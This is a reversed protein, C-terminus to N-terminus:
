LDMDDLSLVYVNKKGGKQHNVIRPNGVAKLQSLMMGARRPDYSRALAQLDSNLMEQLLRTPNGRWERVGPEMTRKQDAWLEILDAFNQEPSKERSTRVLESHHYSTVRYRATGNIVEPPPVWGLLWDLFHPLEAKIMAELVKSEPFDPKRDSLHFLMIKDLITGDLQPLIELSSADTNCTVVVRGRWPLVVSDRYKPHYNVEPNAATKKLMETFKKHDAFNSASVGDDVNWVAVEALQKNFGTGAALLYGAADTGGGMIQRMIFQAFLSKGTDSEGALIVLHGLELRGIRASLWLRQIWALLHDIPDTPITPDADLFGQLFNFLWPWKSIDGDGGAPAMPKRTSINLFTEGQWEVTERPDFLFPATGEISRTDQVAKVVSEAPSLRQGKALQASFGAARIHLMADEKNRPVWRDSSVKIWYKAGDYYINDLVSEIQKTEYTKVFSEGLVERWTLFSKGARDSYCVVGNTVIMGGIRQIGDPIWFLPVRTGWSIDGSLRGPWRDEIEALVVELPIEVDSDAKLTMRKAAEFVCGALTAAPVQVGQLDTWSHGLEFYQSGKASTADYGPLLRKVGAEAIFAEVAKDMLEVPEGAIPKEFEWVLRAKGSFTRCLWQPRIGKKKLGVDVLDIIEQDTLPVLSDSDYDAVFGFRRAVPNDNTIRMGPNIGVVPAYFVHDTTLDECWARFLEKTLGAPVGVPAATQWPPAALTWVSTTRHNKLATYSSM